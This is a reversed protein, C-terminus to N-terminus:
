KGSLRERVEALLKASDDDPRLAQLRLALSRAEDLRLGLDLYLLATSKM